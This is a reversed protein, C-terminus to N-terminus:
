SLNHLLLHILSVKNDSARKLVPQVCSSNGHHSSIIKEQILSNVADIYINCTM